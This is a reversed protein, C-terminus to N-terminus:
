AAFRYPSASQRQVLPPGGAERERDNGGPRSDRDIPCSRFDLRSDSVSSNATFVMEASAMAVSNKKLVVIYSERDQAQFSPGNQASVAASLILLLGFIIFHRQISM